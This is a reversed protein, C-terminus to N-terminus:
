LIGHVGVTETSFKTGKMHLGGGGGGGGKKSQRWSTVHVALAVWHAAHEGLVAHGVPTLLSVIVPVLGLM